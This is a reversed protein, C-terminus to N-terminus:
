RVVATLAYFDRPITESLKFLEGGLMKGFWFTVDGDSRAEVFIPLFGAAEFMGAAANAKESKVRIRAGVRGEPPRAGHQKSTM